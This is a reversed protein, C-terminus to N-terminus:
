QRNRQRVGVHGRGSGGVSPPAKNDSWDGSSGSGAEDGSSDAKERGYRSLAGSASGAAGERGDWPGLTEVVRRFAAVNVAWIRFMEDRAPTVMSVVGLFGNLALVGHWVEYRGPRGDASVADFVEVHGFAVDKGYSFNEPVSMKEGLVLGGKGLFDKGADIEGQLDVEPTKRVLRVNIWGRSESGEGSNIITVKMRDLTRTEYTRLRWSLPYEFQLTEVFNYIDIGQNDDSPLTVPEFSSVCTAQLAKEAAWIRYPMKYVAFLIRTGGMWAAVRVRYNMDGEVTVYQSEVHNGGIERIGELTYGNILAQNILWNRLSMREEIRVTMVHFVSRADLDPPSYYRAVEGIIGPALNQGGEGFDAARVWNRPLRVRFALAPDASSKEDYLVTDRNFVEPSLGAIAPLDPIRNLDFGIAREKAMASGFPLVAFFIALILAKFM